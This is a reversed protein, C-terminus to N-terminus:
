ERESGGWSRGPAPQKPAAEGSGLTIYVAGFDQHLM